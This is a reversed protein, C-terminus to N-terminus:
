IANALIESAAADLAPIAALGLEQIMDSVMAENRFDGVPGLYHSPDDSENAWSVAYGDVAYAVHYLTYALSADHNPGPLGTVEAVLGAYQLHGTLVASRLIALANKFEDSEEAVASRLRNRAWELEQEPFATSM